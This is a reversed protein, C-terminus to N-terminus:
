RQLVRRVGGAPDPLDEVLRHRRPVV